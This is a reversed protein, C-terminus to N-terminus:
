LQHDHSTIFAKLKQTYHISINLKLPWTTQHIQLIM